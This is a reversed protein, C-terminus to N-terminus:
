EFLSRSGVPQVEYNSVDFRAGNVVMVLVVDCAHISKNIKFTQAGTLIRTHTIFARLLNTEFNLVRNEHHYCHVPNTDLGPLFVDFM